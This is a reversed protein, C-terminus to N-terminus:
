LGHHCTVRSVTSTVDFMDVVWIAVSAADGAGVVEVLVPVGRLVTSDEPDEGFSFRVHGVDFRQEVAQQQEPGVAPVGM